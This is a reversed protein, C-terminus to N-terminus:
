RVAQQATYKLKWPEYNETHATRRFDILLKWANAEKLVLEAYLWGFKRIQLYNM